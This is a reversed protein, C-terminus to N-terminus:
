EVLAKFWTMSKMFPCDKTEVIKRAKKGLFGWEDRYERWDHDKDLDDDPLPHSFFLELDGFKSPTLKSTLRITGIKNENCDPTEIAYVDYLDYNPPIEVFQEIFDKEFEDKYKSRLEKNPKFILKFPYSPKEAAEGKDNVASLPKLGLTSIMYTVESFKTSVFKDKDDTEDPIDFQPTLDFKFFNWSAQGSTSWMAVLNESPKGDVLFKIAIGPIFNKIAGEPTAKSTDPKIAVSLRILVNNNGSKFIGSYPHKEKIPIFEAKAIAGVTHIIKFRKEPLVDGKETFSVKLDETFLAMQEAPGYYQASTRDETIADWLKSMKEEAPKKFYEESSFDESIVFFCLLSLILLKPISM